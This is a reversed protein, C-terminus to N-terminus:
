ELKPSEEGNGLRLVFSIKHTAGLQDNSNFSYDLSNGSLILGGGLSFSRPASEAGSQYGARLVLLERYCYEIGSAASYVGDFPVSTSGMLMLSRGYPLYSIGVNVKTPLPSSSTEYQVKPGLNMASLGITYGNKRYQVGIDAAFGSTSYDDLQEGIWKGGFGVSLSPTFNHGYSLGVSMDYANINGTAINNETYGNIDGMSLYTVSFGLGGNKGAPLSIGFFEYRLDQYWESHMGAIQYNWTQSLGAPNYHISSPGDSVASWAGSTAADRASVGINMFDFASQGGAFCIGNLTLITIVAAIKSSLSLKM